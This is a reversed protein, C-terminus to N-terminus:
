KAHPLSGQGSSLSEGHNGAAHTVATALTYKQAFISLARQVTITISKEEEDSKVKARCQYGAHNLVMGFRWQRGNEIDNKFRLMTRPIITSPLYDFKMIFRLPTGKILEPEDTIEKPLLNPVIYHHAQKNYEYCLEFQMM